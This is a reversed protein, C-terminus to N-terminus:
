IIVVDGLFVEAVDGRDGFQLLVVAGFGREKLFSRDIMRSGVSVSSSIRRFELLWFM